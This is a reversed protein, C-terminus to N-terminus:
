VTNDNSRKHKLILRHNRIDAISPRNDPESLFVSLILDEAEASLMNQPFAVKRSRIRNMTELKSNSDFPLRATLMAFLVVACSWIDAKQPDFGRTKDKTELVEPAVYDLTGCRTFCQSDCTAFGFDGLQIHSKDKALFINETKIDRHAIGLSHLHEIADMLNLFYKVATLEDLGGDRATAGRARWVRIIEDFLDGGQLFDQVLFVHHASSSVCHLRVINPHGQAKKLCVVETEPNAVFRTSPTESAPTAAANSKEIIKVAFKPSSDQVHRAVRVEAFSGQGIMDLVVYDQGVMGKSGNDPTPGDLSLASLAPLQTTGNRFQSPSTIIVNPSLVTM